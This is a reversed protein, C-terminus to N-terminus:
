LSNEFLIVIGTVTKKEYIGNTESFLLVTLNLIFHLVHSVSNRTVPM